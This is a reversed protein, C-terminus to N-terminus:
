KPIERNFTNYIMNIYIPFLEITQKVREHFIKNKENEFFEMLKM